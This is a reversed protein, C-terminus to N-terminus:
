RPRSSSKGPERDASEVRLSDAWRVPRTGRPRGGVWRAARGSSVGSPGRGRSRVAADDLGTRRPLLRGCGGRVRGAIAAATRVTAGNLTRFALTGFLTASVLFFGFLAVTVRARFSSFPNRWTRVAPRRGVLVYQGLAGCFFFRWDMASCWFLGERWLWYRGRCIWPTNPTSRGM